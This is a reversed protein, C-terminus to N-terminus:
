QKQIVATYGSPKLNLEIDYVGASTIDINPGDLIINDPTGGFNIAWDDNARFKLQGPVLNMTVKWIYTGKGGPFTMDTDTTWGGSTADGVVGMSLALEQYTLAEADMRLRYFGNQPVTVNGADENQLLTGLTAGAGYANTWDINTPLFKFGGDATLYEFTEFKTKSDSDYLSLPTALTPEWGAGTSGGVLYMVPNSEEFIIPREKEVTKGGDMYKVKLIAEGVWSDDLPIEFEQEIIRQGNSLTIEESLLVTSNLEISFGFSNVNNTIFGVKLKKGIQISNVTSENISVIQDNIEHQVKKCGVFLCLVMLICISSIVKIKKM